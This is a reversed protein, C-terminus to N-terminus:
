NNTQPNFPEVKVIISDRGVIRVKSGVVLNQLCDSQAKWDDGDLKVRGYGGSIITESVEGVRGIIADANSLRNDQNRNLLAVLRPRLIYISVVSFVAFVIVQMWFPVCFLSATMAVLAGIGFCTIYFDGSSMEMILCVMAVIAWLSWLHQMFYDIM